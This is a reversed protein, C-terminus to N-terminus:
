VQVSQAASEMLIDAEYVNRSQHGSSSTDIGIGHRQGKVWQGKYSKGSPWTFKGEGHRKDDFYEGEYVMHGRSTPWRMQGHGSFKGDQFHGLYVRGDRWTQKAQGNLKGNNWYGISLSESRSEFCGYGDFAETDPNVQGKYLGSTVRYERYNPHETDVRSVTLKQMIPQHEVFVAVTDASEKESSASMSSMETESASLAVAMAEGPQSRSLVPVAKQDDVLQGRSRASVALKQDLSPRRQPPTEDLGCALEDTAPEHVYPQCLRQSHCCNHGFCQSMSIQPGGFGNKAYAKPRPTSSTASDREQVRDSSLGTHEQVYEIGLPGESDHGDGVRQQAQSCYLCKSSNAQGM